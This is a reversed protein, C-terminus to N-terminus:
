LTHPHDLSLILKKMSELFYMLFLQKCGHQPLFDPTPAIPADRFHYEFTLVQSGYRAPLLWAM